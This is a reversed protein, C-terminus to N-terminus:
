QILFNKKKMKENGDLKMFTACVYFPIKKRRVCVFLWVFFVCLFFLIKKRIHCCFYFISIIVNAFFPLCFFAVFFLSQPNLCPSFTKAVHASYFHFTKEVTGSPSRHSNQHRMEIVNGSLNYGIINWPKCFLRKESSNVRWSALTWCCKLPIFSLRLCKWQKKKKNM